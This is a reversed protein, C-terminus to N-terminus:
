DLFQLTYHLFLTFFFLFLLFFLLSYPSSDIFLQLFTIFFSTFFLIPFHTRLYDFSFLPALPYWLLIFIKSLGVCQHFIFFLLNYASTRYLTFFHLFFTYFKISFNYPTIFFFHLFPDFFTSFFSHTLHLTSLFNHFFSSFLTTPFSHKLLRFSFRLFIQTDIIYPFFPIFCSFYFM